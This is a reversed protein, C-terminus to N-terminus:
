RTAPAGDLSEDHYVITKEVLHAEGPLVVAARWQEGAFETVAALDGWVSVM